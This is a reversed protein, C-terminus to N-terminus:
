VEQTSPKPLVQVKVGVAVAVASGVEVFVTRLVGVMHLVCAGVGVTEVAWPKWIPTM